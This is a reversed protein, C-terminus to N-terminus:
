VCDVQTKRGLRTTKGTTKAHKETNHVKEALFMAKIYRLRPMSCLGGVTDGATQSAWGGARSPTRKTPDVNKM